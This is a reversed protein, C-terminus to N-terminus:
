DPSPTFASSTNSHKKATTVEKESSLLNKRYMAEKLFKQRTEEQLEELDKEEKRIFNKQQESNRRIKMFYFIGMLFILFIVISFGLEVPVM